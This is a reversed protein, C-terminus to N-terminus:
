KETVLVKIQCLSDQEFLNFELNQIIFKSRFKLHASLSGKIELRICGITRLHSELILYQVKPM